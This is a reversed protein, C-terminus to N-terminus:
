RSVTDRLRARVGKVTETSGPRDDREGPSCDDAPKLDCHPQVFYVMATVWGVALLVSGLEDTPHHMGQYMRSLGVWLPMAIAIALLAWKWWQRTRPWALIIIAAYLCITAAVHGSPFSSTPVHGDLHDVDPRARGTIVQAALFLTLEGFMTLVLFVVPRWRRIAALAVAGAILGVAMIMHTNGATGGLLAIRNLAATRHAALFHPITHDGLINGNGDHYKALPIGMACLVGFILVWAVVGGAIAWGTRMVEAAIAPGVPRLDDAVEPELGESLPETVRRGEHRRHLEFAYATIGLWAIGLCWAGVVDSLFHVGLAIRSIGIAVIVVALAATVIRRFRQSMAPAFVLLLAGYAIMSALAHGSPFSNGGGVAVPDAVVPRLRGVAMKLTPDLILAGAGAVLLYGALRYMRRVGLVVVAIVILWGLVGHSGLLSVVQLARVLMPHEAVARNFDQALGHDVWELPFWQLRVLVLLITFAVGAGGVLAVRGLGRGLYRSTWQPTVSAPNATVLNRRRTLHHTRPTAGTNGRRRIECVGYIIM